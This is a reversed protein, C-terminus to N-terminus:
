ILSKKSSPFIPVLFEKLDNFILISNIKYLIIGGYIISM